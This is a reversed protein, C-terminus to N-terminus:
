QFLGQLLDRFSLVTECSPDPLVEEFVFRRRLANDMASLSRDVTNMTGILHVSPPITLLRGSYPLVRKEEPAGLRKDPELLTILEGFVRSLDARNIEDIVLVVPELANQPEPIHQVVHEWVARLTGTMAFLSQM